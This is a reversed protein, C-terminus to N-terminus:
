RLLSKYRRRLLSLGVFGVVVAFWLTAFRVLLMAGTDAGPTINGMQKMLTVMLTETVGLGGPVPVLAGALTSTAYFFSAGMVPVHEGFGVLIVWLALCELFWAGVSIITPLVLHQPRALEYLSDYAARLKAVIPRGGFLRDLVGLALNGLPRITIFLLLVAVASAGAIAWPLGGSFWASGAAILIVVGLVDTLREAIVIPATREVPVGKIEWLVISKFM